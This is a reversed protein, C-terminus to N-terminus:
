HRLDAPTGLHPGEPATFWTSARYARRTDEV